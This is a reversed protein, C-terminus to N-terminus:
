RIIIFAPKVRSSKADTLCQQVAPSGRAGSIEVANLFRVPSVICSPKPCVSDLTRIPLKVHNSGCKPEAPLNEGNYSKSIISESPSDHRAPLVPSSTTLFISLYLGAPSSAPYQFPSFSIGAHSSFNM